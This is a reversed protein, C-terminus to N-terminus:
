TETPKCQARDARDSGGDICQDAGLRIHLQPFDELIGEPGQLPDQTTIYLLVLGQASRSVPAHMWESWRSVAEPRAQGDGRAGRALRFLQFLQLVDRLVVLERCWEVEVRALVLELVVVVDTSIAARFLELVCM